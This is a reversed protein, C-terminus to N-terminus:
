GEYVPVSECTCNDHQPGLPEDSITGDLGACAGCADAGAVFMYQKKAM